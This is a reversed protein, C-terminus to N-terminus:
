KRLEKKNLKWKANALTYFADVTMAQKDKRVRSFTQPLRGKDDMQIASRKVKILITAGSNINLHGEDDM